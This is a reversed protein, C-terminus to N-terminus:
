PADLGALYAMKMAEDSLIAEAQDVVTRIEDLADAWEARLDADLREDAFTERLDAAARAVTVPDATREVGLVEFLDGHRVRALMDEIRAVALDIPDAPAQAVPEALLDLADFVHLVYVLPWLRVARGAWADELDLLRASGDLAEVVGIEDSSLGLADRWAAHVLPLGEGMRWPPRLVPAHETGVARRLAARPVFRDVGELLFRGFPADFEVPLADNPDAEIRFTGSLRPLVSAAVDRVHAALVEPLEAATLFGAEVLLTGARRPDKSVLRRAAEYQSRSIRGRVVLGSLLRDGPATGQASVVVGERFWVTKRGDELDFSVRGSFRARHLKVFLRAPEVDALDGQGEVPLVGLARRVPVFPAPVPREDPSADPTSSPSPAAPHSFSPRTHERPDVPETVVPARTGLSVDARFVASLDEDLIRVGSDAPGDPDPPVIGIDDQLDGDGFTDVRSKDVEELTRRVRRLAGDENTASGERADDALVVTRDPEPRDEVVLTAPDGDADTRTGLLDELVPPLDHELTEWEVFEDAGLDLVDAVDSVEGGLSGVLVVPVLAGRPTRRLAAVTRAVDAGDMVLVVAAPVVACAAVADALDAADCPIPDAGAGRVVEAIEAFAADEAVILM